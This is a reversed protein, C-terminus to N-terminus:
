GRVVRVKSLLIALVMFLLATAMLMDAIYTPVGAARSMADSGVFIGAVFIATVVVGLPHLLALMAVIIGTYGFGPSLDSSLHGKLGAVESWGALAALGGSLLATKVLVANVPMGAFRAAEPNQGVARIEFGLTTRTQIVWVIIAALIALAFGWHLRLGEVLRPLRAEPILPTSKPWGMGMPDKMPGELLYSVFLIMIFNLLLTTVVEDVGLRTKLLVPGLLLAAGALMAALASLPLVWPSGLAGTGLVVAMIAGAYLQAEAGINWLKARFAVAVALGTFILPTARNLTELVALKSGLAGTAIQGLVALPNAGAILALLMAVGLTAVLALAPLGLRRAASPNAIPELRM